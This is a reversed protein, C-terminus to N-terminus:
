NLKNPTTSGSYENKKFDKKLISDNKKQLSEVWMRFQIVVHDSKGLGPQYTIEDIEM